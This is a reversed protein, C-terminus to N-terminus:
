PVLGGDRLFQLDVTITDGGVNNTLTVRFFKARTVFFTGIPMPTGPPITFRQLPENDITTGGDISAYVTLIMDDATGSTSTREFQVQMVEKTALQYWASSAGEAIGLEITPAAEYAM